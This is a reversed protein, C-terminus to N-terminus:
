GGSAEANEVDKRVSSLGGALDELSHDHILKEADLLLAKAAPIDGSELSTTARVLLSWAKFSHRELHDVADMENFVAETGDLESLAKPFRKLARLLRGIEIMSEARLALRGAVPM